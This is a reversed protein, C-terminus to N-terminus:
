NKLAKPKAKGKAAPAKAKAKAEKAPKAAVVAEKAGETAKVFLKDEAYRIIVKVGANFAAQRISSVIKRWEKGKPWLDDGEPVEYTQGDFLGVYKGPGRNRRAKFEEISRKSVAPMRNRWFTLPFFGMM